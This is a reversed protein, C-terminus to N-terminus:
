KRERTPKCKHRAANCTPLSGFTLLFFVPQLAVKTGSRVRGLDVTSGYSLLLRVADLQGHLAAFSLPTRGEGVGSVRRSVQIHTDPAEVEQESSPHLSPLLLLAAFGLQRRSM